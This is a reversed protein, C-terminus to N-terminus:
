KAAAEKKKIGFDTKLASMIRECGLAAYPILLVAYFLVYRTKAEWLIHFFFGGLVILALLLQDLTCKKRLSLMGTFACAYLIWQYENAFLLFLRHLKGEYISQVVPYLPGDHVKEFHSIWLCEFTPNTWQSVTKHYYFKLAYAPHSIFNNVSDRIDQVAKEASREFDEDCEWFSGLIYGNYWGEAMDSEQMGMAIYMLPSVGGEIEYGSRIEYYKKVGADLIGVSLVSLAIMLLCVKKRQELGKMLLYLIVAVAIILNNQKFQVSLGLGLVASIGYSLRKERMFRIFCYVSALAVPAGPIDGYLFTSFFMYPFFGFLFILVLNTVKKDAFLLGTIKYILYFELCIFCVNVWEGASYSFPGFVRFLVELYATFGLQQPCIQLYKGPSLNYFDGKIFGAACETLKAQDASPVAHSVVSWIGAFVATYCLLIICLKKSSVRELVEKKKVWYLFFLFCCAALLHWLLSDRKYYTTELYDMKFYATSLFSTVSLFAYVILSLSLVVWKGAEPIKETIKDKWHVNM